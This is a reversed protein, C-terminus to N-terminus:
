LRSKAEKPAFKVEDYETIPSVKTKKLCIVCTGEKLTLGGGFPMEGYRTGCYHCVEKNDQQM